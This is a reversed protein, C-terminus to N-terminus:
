EALLLQDNSLLIYLLSGVKFRKEALIIDTFFCLLEISASMYNFYYLDNAFYPTFQNSKLQTFTIAFDSLMELSM